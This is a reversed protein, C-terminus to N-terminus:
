LFESVVQPDLESKPNLAPISIPNEIVNDTSNELHPTVALNTPSIELWDIGISVESEVGADLLAPTSVATETLSLTSTSLAENLAEHTTELAITPDLNPTSNLTSLPAISFISFADEAGDQKELYDGSTAMLKENADIPMIELGWTATLTPSLTSNSDSTLDSSLAPNLTPSLTDSQALIEASTLKTREVSQIQPNLAVNPYELQRPLPSSDNFTATSRAQGFLPVSFLSVPKSQPM